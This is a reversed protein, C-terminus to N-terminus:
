DYFISQWMFFSLTVPPLGGYAFGSYIASADARDYVDIGANAIPYIEFGPIEDISRRKNETDVNAM